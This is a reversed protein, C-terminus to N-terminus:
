SNLHTYKNSWLNAPVEAWKWKTAGTSADMAWLIAQGSGAYFKKANGPVTSVYVTGDHVGPPMDIGENANRTLKKIWLQDGNSAKLAFASDGTNGYVTGNVVSRGNPGVSESNYKHTWLVKGSDLDIAQVNSDIDQSYMVGNAVVPTSSYGGFAGGATIPVTWAVGLTSVNSRNLPGGVSRTNQINANPLSWATAATSNSSSNNSSGGCAAVFLSTVILLGVAAAWRHLRMTRPPQSNKM